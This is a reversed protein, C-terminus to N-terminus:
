SKRKPATVPEIPKIDDFFDLCKKEDPGYLEKYMAIIAKAQVLEKELAANRKELKKYQTIATGIEMIAKYMGELPEETMM